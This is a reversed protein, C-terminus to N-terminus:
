KVGPNLTQKEVAIIRLDQGQVLKLKGIDLLVYLYLNGLKLNLMELIFNRMTM